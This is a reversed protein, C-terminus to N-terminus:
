YEDSTKKFNTIVYWDTINYFTRFNYKLYYFIVTQIKIKLQSNHIFAHGYLM